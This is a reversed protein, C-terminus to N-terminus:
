GGGGRKSVWATCMMMGCLGAARTVATLAARTVATSSATNRPCRGVQMSDTYGGERRRVREKDRGGMGREGRESM